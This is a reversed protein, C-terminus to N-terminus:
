FVNIQNESANAFGRICCCGGLEVTKTIVVERMVSLVGGWVARGSIDSGHGGGTRTKVVMGYLVSLVRWAKVLALNENNAPQGNIWSWFGMEFDVGLFMQPETKQSWISFYFIQHLFIVPAHEWIVCRYLRSPPLPGPPPPLQGWLTTMVPAVALGVPLKTFSIARQLGWLSVLPNSRQM